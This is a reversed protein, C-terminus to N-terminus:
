VTFRGFIRFKLLITSLSQTLALTVYPVRARPPVNREEWTTKSIHAGAFSGRGSMFKRLLPINSRM